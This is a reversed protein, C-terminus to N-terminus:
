KPTRRAPRFSWLANLIMAAPENGELGQAGAVAAVVQPRLDAAQVGFGNAAAAAFQGVVQWTKRGLPHAAGAAPSRRQFFSGAKFFKSANPQVVQPQAGRQPMTLILTLSQRRASISHAYYIQHLVRKAPGSPDPRFTATGPEATSFQV